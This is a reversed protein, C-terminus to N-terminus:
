RKKLEKIIEGARSYEIDCLAIGDTYEISEELRKYYEDKNVTENNWYWTGYNLFDFGESNEPLHDDDISFFGEALIEIQGNKMVYVTDAPTGYPAYGASDHFKGIGPLYYLTGRYGGGSAAGDSLLDNIVAKKDGNHSVILYPQMGIMDNDIYSGTAILEPIGDLDFDILAFGDLIVDWYDDLKYSKYNKIIDIYEEYLTDNSDAVSVANSFRSYINKAITNLEAKDTFYTSLSSVIVDSKNLTRTNNEIDTNYLDSHKVPKEFLDFYDGTRVGMDALNKIDEETLAETVNNRETLHYEIGFCYLDWNNKDFIWYFQEFEGYGGGFHQSVIIGSKPYLELYDNIILSKFNGDIFIVLQQYGDAHSVNDANSNDLFLIPIQEEGLYYIKYELKETSIFLDHSSEIGMYWNIDNQSLLKKYEEEIKDYKNSDIEDQVSVTEAVTNEEEKEEEKGSSNKTVEKQREALKMLEKAAHGNGYTADGQAVESTHSNKIMIVAFVIAAVAVVTATIAAISLLASPAKKPRVVPKSTVQRPQIINGCKPCFRADSSIEKGCHKCIM